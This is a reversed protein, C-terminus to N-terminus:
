EGVGVGEEEEAEEVVVLSLNKWYGQSTRRESGERGEGGGGGGYWSRM